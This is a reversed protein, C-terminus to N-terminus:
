KIIKAATVMSSAGGKQDSAGRGFVKGDSIEGSFPEKEWLNIDGIDVTDIHADFAVVPDGDGIRAVLNGMPDIETRAGAKEFSLATFEIMEKEQSSLSKIKVMESLLRANYEENEEALTMIKNYDISSM